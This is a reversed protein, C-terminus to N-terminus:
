KSLQELLRAKKEQTTFIIVQREGGIAIFSSSQLGTRKVTGTYLCFPQAHTLCGLRNYEDITVTKFLVVIDNDVSPQADKEIYNKFEGYFNAISRVLELSPKSNVSHWHAHCAAYLGKPMKIIVTNDALIYVVPVFNISNFLAARCEGFFGPEWVINKANSFTIDEEDSFVICARNNSRGTKLVDLVCKMTLGDTITISGNRNVHSHQEKDSDAREECLGEAERWVAKIANEFDEPIYMTYNCVNLTKFVVFSLEDYVNSISRLESLRSPTISNESMILMGSANFIGRSTNRDEYVVRMFPSIKGTKFYEVVADELANTSHMMDPTNWIGMPPQPPLTNVWPPPNPSFTNSWRSAVGDQFVPSPSAGYARNQAQRNRLFHQNHNLMFLQLCGNQLKFVCFNLVLGMYRCLDMYVGKDMTQHTLLPDRSMYSLLIAEDCYSLSVDSYTSGFKITTVIKSLVGADLGHKPKEVKEVNGDTISIIDYGSVLLGNDTLRLASESSTPKLVLSINKM